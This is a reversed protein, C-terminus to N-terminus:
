PATYGEPPIKIQQGIELSNPNALNNYAALEEITFGYQLGIRYLNDGAQVTHIQEGTGPEATETESPTEAASDDGSLPILLQQGV